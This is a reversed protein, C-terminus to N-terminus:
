VKDGAQEVVERTTERGGPLVVRDQRLNVLRGEYIRRSQITKEQM